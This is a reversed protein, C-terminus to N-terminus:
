QESGGQKNKQQWTGLGKSNLLSQDRGFQAYQQMLEAKLSDLRMSSAALSPEFTDIQSPEIQPPKGSESPPATDLKSQLRELARADSVWFVLAVSMILAVFAAYLQPTQVAVYGWMLLLYMGAAM